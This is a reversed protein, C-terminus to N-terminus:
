CQQDDANQGTFPEGVDVQRELLELLELLAAGNTSDVLRDATIHRMDM